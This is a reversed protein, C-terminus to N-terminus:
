SSEKTLWYRAFTHRLQHPTGNVKAANFVRSLHKHWVDSANEVSGRCFFYKGKHLGNRKMQQLREVLDSPLPVM